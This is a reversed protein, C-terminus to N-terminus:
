TGPFRIYLAEIFRNLKGLNGHANPAAEVAAFLAARV